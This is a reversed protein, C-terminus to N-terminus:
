RKCEWDIIKEEKYIYVQLDHDRNTKKQAKIGTFRTFKFHIKLNLIFLFDRVHTAQKRRRTVYINFLWNLLAFFVM